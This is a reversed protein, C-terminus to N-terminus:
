PQVSIRHHFECYPKGPEQVDCGCFRANAGFGEAPWKCMGRGLDMLTVMMMDPRAIPPEIIKPPKPESHKRRPALAARITSTRVIRPAKKPRPRPKRSGNSRRPLLPCDKFEDPKRHYLSIIGNRVAGPILSAIQSSSYGPEYVKKIAAVKEAPDMLRWDKHITM